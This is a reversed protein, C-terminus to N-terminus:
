TSLKKRRSVGILGLLGTGFLWAAAPIPVVSWNGPNNLTSVSGRGINRIESTICEGFAAANCQRLTGSDDNDFGDITPIGRSYIGAATAGLIPPLLEIIGIEWNIIQGSENTDLLFRFREIQDANTLTHVGDTFNFSSILSTVDGSVNILLSDVTFSGSVNMSTDYPNTASTYKNGVYKYVVSANATNTSLVLMLGLFINRRMLRSLNM